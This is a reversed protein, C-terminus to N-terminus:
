HYAAYYEQCHSVCPNLYRADYDLQPNYRAVTERKAGEYRELWIQAAQALGESTNGCGKFKDGVYYYRGKTIDYATYAIQGDLTNADYGNASCWAVVEDWRKDDAATGNRWQFIGHSTGAPNALTPDFTGGTERFANGMMASAAVKATEIDMGNKQLEAVCYDFISRTDSSSVQSLLSASLKGDEGVSLVMNM